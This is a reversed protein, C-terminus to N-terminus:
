QQEVRDRVRAEVGLRVALEGGAVEEPAVRHLPEPVLVRGFLRLAVLDRRRRQARADLLEGPQRRRQDDGGLRVDQAVLTLGVPALQARGADVHRRRAVLPDDVVEHHEVGQALGIARPRRDILRDPEETSPEARLRSCSLPGIDLGNMKMAVFRSLGPAQAAARRPTGPSTSNMLAPSGRRSAKLSYMLASRVSTVTTCTCGSAADISNWM